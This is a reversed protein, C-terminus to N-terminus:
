GFPPCGAWWSKASNNYDLDSNEAYYKELIQDYTEKIPYTQQANCIYFSSIICICIIIKKKM